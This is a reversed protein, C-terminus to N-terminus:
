DEGYVLFDCQDHILSRGELARFALNIWRWAGLILREHVYTKLRPPDTAFVEIVPALSNQDKALVYQILVIYVELPGKM